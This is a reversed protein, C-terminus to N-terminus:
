FVDGVGRRQPAHADAFEHEATIGIWANNNEGNQQRRGGIAAANSVFCHWIGVKRHRCLRWDVRVLSGILPDVTTARGDSCDGLGYVEQKSMPSQSLRRLVRPKLHM